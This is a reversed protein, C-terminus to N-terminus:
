NTTIATIEDATLGLDTLYNTLTAIFNGQWNNFDADSRPMYSSM